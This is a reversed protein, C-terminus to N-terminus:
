GWIERWPQTIWDNAFNKPGALLDPKFSYIEIPNEDEKAEVSPTNSFAWIDGEPTLTIQNKTTHIKNIVKIHQNEGSSLDMTFFTISNPIPNNPNEAFVGAFMYDTLAILHLPKGPIQIDLHRGKELNSIDYCHIKTDTCFLHYSSNLPINFHIEQPIELTHLQTKESDFIFPHDTRPIYQILLKTESILSLKSEHTYERSTRGQPIIITIIDEPKDQSSICLQDMGGLSALIALKNGPLPQYTHDSNSTIAEISNALPHSSIGATKSTNIDYIHHYKREADPSSKVPIDICDKSLDLYAHKKESGLLFIQNDQLVHITHPLFPIFYVSSINWFDNAPNNDLLLLQQEGDKQVVMLGKDKFSPESPFYISHIGYYAIQSFPSTEEIKSPSQTFDTSPTILRKLGPVPNGIYTFPTTLTSLISKLPDHTSHVPPTQLAKEETAGTTPTIDAM